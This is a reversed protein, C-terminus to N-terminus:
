VALSQGIFPDLKVAIGAARIKRNLKTQVLTKLQLQTTIASLDTDTLQIYYDSPNGAGPDLAVFRLEIGGDQVDYATFTCTM